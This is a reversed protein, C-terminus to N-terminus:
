EIAPTGVVWSFSVVGQVKLCWPQGEASAALERDTYIHLERGHTQYLSYERSYETQAGPHALVKLVLAMHEGPAEASTPKISDFLSFESSVKIGYLSHEVM